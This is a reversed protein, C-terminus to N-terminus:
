LPLLPLAWGIPEAPFPVPAQTAWAWGTSGGEGVSIRNAFYKKVVPILNVGSFEEDNRFFSRSPYLSADRQNNSSISTEKM